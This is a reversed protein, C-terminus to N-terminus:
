CCLGLEARPPFGPQLNYLTVGPDCSGQAARILLSNKWVILLSSLHDGSSVVRHFLEAIRRLEEKGSGGSM